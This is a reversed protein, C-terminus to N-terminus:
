LPLSSPPPHPPTTTTPPRFSPPLLPSVLLFLQKEKLCRTTASACPPEAARAAVRPKNAASPCDHLIPPPTPPHVQKSVKPEEEMYKQEIPILTRLGAKVQLVAHVFLSVSFGRQNFGCRHHKSTTTIHTKVAGVCHLVHTARVVDPPSSATLHRGRFVCLSPSHVFM